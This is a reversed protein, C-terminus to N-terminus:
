LFSKPMPFTVGAIEIIALATATLKIVVANKPFWEVRRILVAIVTAANGLWVWIIAFVGFSVQVLWGAIAYPENTAFRYPYDLTDYGGLLQFLGLLLYPITFLCAFIQTFRVALTMEIERALVHPKLSIWIRWTLALGILPGFFWFYSLVFEM